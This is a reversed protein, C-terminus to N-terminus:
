FIIKSALTTFIKSRLSQFKLCKTGCTTSSPNVDGLFNGVPDAILLKVPLGTMTEVEDLAQEISLRQDLCVPNQIWQKTAQDFYSAGRWLFCNELNVGNAVLRKKFIKQKGEIPFFIVTGKECPTGDLWDHGNTVHSALYCTFFSKGVSGAGSVLTLDGIALKNEWLWTQEGDEIDSWRVVDVRQGKQVPNASETAGAAPAPTYRPTIQCLQKLSEAVEASTKGKAFDVIDGGEPLGPLEIVKVDNPSEWRLNEATFADAAIIGAKKGPEDADPLIRVAKGLDPYRNLIGAWEKASNCGGSLTTAICDTLGTEDFIRQLEDAAKEGECIFLYKAQLAKPLRYPVITDPKGKVWQGNEWKSQSFSKPEFRIVRHHNQENEDTYIYTAVIRKSAKAGKV